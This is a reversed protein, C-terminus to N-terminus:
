KVELIRVVLGLDDHADSMEISNIICLKNDIMLKQGTKFPGEKKNSIAVDGRGTINFWEKAKINKM